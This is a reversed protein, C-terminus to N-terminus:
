IRRWHDYLVGGNRSRVEVKKNSQQFKLNSM